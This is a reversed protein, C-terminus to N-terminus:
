FNFANKIPPAVTMRNKFIEACVIVVQPNTLLKQKWKRNILKQNNICYKYIKKRFLRLYQM